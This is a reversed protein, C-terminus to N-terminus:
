RLTKGDCLQVLIAQTLYPTFSLSVPKIDRHIIGAIHMNEISQLMQLLLNLAVGETFQKGLSKKFSAVSQGKLEMVIFSQKNLHEQSVFDLVSVIGALGRLKILYQYEAVLIRRAKDAKEMKIAVEKNRAYDIAQYIISFSGQGLEQVIKFGQRHSSLHPPHEYTSANTSSVPYTTQNVM